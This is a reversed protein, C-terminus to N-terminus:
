PSCTVITCSLTRRSCSHVRACSSPRVVSL